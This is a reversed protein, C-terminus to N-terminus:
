QPKTLDKLRLDEPTDAQNEPCATIFAAHELCNREIKTITPFNDLPVDFRRANYVQPVLCIDAISIDEGCSYTHKHGTQGKLLSEIATFGQQIWTQYWDGKQQQDAQLNQLLYNLVKLNNVPHIDCAIINAIQRIFARQELDKPLIPTNPYKEELYELIAMSQGLVMDGDILTPVLAQPNLDKYDPKHQEGGDKVLHVSIHECEIGKLALAIRVRYAATSRFYGYLKM